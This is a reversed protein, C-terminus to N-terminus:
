NKKCFTLDLVMDILNNKLGPEANEWHTKNILWKRSSGPYYSELVKLYRRMPSIIDNLDSVNESKFVLIEKKNKKWNYRKDYEEFFNLIEKNKKFLFTDYHEINNNKAFHSVTEPSALLIKKFDGPNKCEGDFMKYISESEYIIKEM